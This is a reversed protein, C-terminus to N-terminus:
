QKNSLGAEVAWMAIQIRSTFNLKFMINSIHTEVTRRTVVLTEAIAHNSKGQAILRAVERERETLGGPGQKTKRTPTPLPVEPLFANAQELFHKHLTEDTLTTALADILKHASAFAEEAETLRNQARYLNGLIICLRWQLPRVGQAGATAQAAKLVKEAEPLRQLAILTEGRLKAIRLGSQQSALHADALAIADIIELAREPYGHALALEVEACWAMRQAMTQAPTTPKLTSRLVQEASTLDNLQICTSALYGAAIYTWLLSGIERALTLAQEFQERAQVLALVSSYIGGLVTHAATQWQRHEIEDAINLSQQALTLARTYDGQSALCLSLQFLAYAEASRQGIERAIVLAHEADLSTEALSATSILTDTQYTPGRLTLTALSSTLGQRDGLAQFLTIAQQYYATGGILDGGVYSVMGLLDLTKAIGDTDHLEQFMTLAEQHYRLAERPQEVNTYWNGIRNLSHAHLTPDNLAQALTLAQRFWPEAQTYDRGAWLFGLDMTCQWEAKHDSLTQASHLAQTYNQRAQEFDGLMEYAQGRARTLTPPPALSLQHAADLAWTFYDIATLHAYLRLAKEGARQAYSMAKPWAQARYFHIALDELHANITTPSLQELTEAITKHLKIRERTLLQTYIAERILAHRFAFREASEEIVLRATLLEKLGNLLQDETYRTVQQLLLFDFHRGIVAALMLIYRAEASIHETQQQVADQVSRPIYVKSASQRNWYGQAFFINKAAILSSLTEEVFFPNGDTLDYLAQLLEGHLFRRMDFSTYSQDFIASLMADVDDRSLPTLQIEWDLRERELLTLWDRLAPQTEDHRYTALLLLPHATSRRILYYLFELSTTDSWHVDEIILLVPMQTSLYDFFTALVTFLRRKEQEPELQSLTLGSVLEPLLPFIDHALTQIATVILASPHSALLSRLLDLLPAYPCNHDAPFCQGQLLLFGQTAAYAKTEAVLRSKGIGAEGSIRAIHGMSNKAEDVLLCLKALHDTRGVLIPSTIPLTVTEKM